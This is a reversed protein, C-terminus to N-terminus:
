RASLLQLPADGGEVDVVNQSAEVTQDVPQRLRRGVHDTQLFKSGFLAAEGILREILESLTQADVMEQDRGIESRQDDVSADVAPHPAKLPGTVM